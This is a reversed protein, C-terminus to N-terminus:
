GEVMAHLGYVEKRVRYYIDGTGGEVEIRGGEMKTVAVVEGAGDEGELEEAVGCVLVGEGAFEAAIGIKQLRSKLATLKLDGIFLSSPLPPLTILLSNLLSSAQSLSSSSASSPQLQTSSAFELIPITSNSPFTYRGTIQAVEYDEFQLSSLM